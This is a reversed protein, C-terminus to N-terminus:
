AKQAAQVVLPKHEAAVHEKFVQSRGLEVNEVTGDARLRALCVAFGKSTRVIGSLVMSAVPIAGDRGRPYDIASDTIPKTPKVTKV